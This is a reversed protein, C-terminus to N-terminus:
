YEVKLWYTHDENVWIDNILFYKWLKLESWNSDLNQENFHNNIIHVFFTFFKLFKDTTSLLKDNTMQYNLSM